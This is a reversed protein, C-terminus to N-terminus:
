LSLSVQCTLLISLLPLICHPYAEGGRKPASPLSLGSLAHTLLMMQMDENKIKSNTVFPVFIIKFGYVKCSLKPQMESLVEYM